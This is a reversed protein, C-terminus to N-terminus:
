RTVFALCRARVSETAISQCLAVAREPDGRKLEHAVGQRCNDAFAGQNTCGVLADDPSREAAGWGAGHMCTGRWQPTARACADAAEQLDRRAIYKGIGHWCTKRQLEDGEEKACFAVAADLNVRSVEGNVDHRCFLKFAEAHECRSTAYAPDTEALALGMGFACQGRWKLSEIGACIAEGAARDVPAITEAIDARCELALEADAVRACIALSGQPDVAGGQRALAQWCNDRINDPMGLCATTTLLADGEGNGAAKPSTAGDPKPPLVMGAEAPPAVAAAIADHVLAALGFRAALLAAFCVLTLLSFSRSRM